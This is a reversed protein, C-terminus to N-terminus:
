SKQERAHHLAEVYDKLLAVEKERIGRRERQHQRDLEDSVFSSGTFIGALGCTAIDATLSAGLRFIDTLSSM